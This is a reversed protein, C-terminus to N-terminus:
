RNEIIKIIENVIREASDTIKLNSINKSLVEKKEIDNLLKLTTDVLLEAADSDKVMLAADKNVLSMANKTQHDESVNPSPVLICPKGVLCLESITGAGARSIIIDAASYALDMRGIFDSVILNEQDIDKLAQNVEDIYLKGTQWIVQIDPSNLKSVDKILSHNITRAGLSGGLVLITKKNEDLNFHSIAESKKGSIDIIDSRVPNGTHIIKEVPFFRDMNDYAVCIKNVRNKLLKNTIGPYSNQEQILTPIKKGSAMYLLAGSAYGGVGIAIDPRFKNIIGSAKFLSIILKIFFTFSKISLKRSFGIIPLGEIRYGANPVREMEMRNSAGVFLIEVGKIREKIENAIAIAPFIHGGTGGGSIIVKINHLKNM